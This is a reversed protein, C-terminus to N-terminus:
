LFTVTNLFYIFFLHIIQNSSIFATLSSAHITSLSCCVCVCVCVCLSMCLYVSVFTCVCVCVCVCLMFIVNM